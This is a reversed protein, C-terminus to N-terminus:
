FILLLLLLGFVLFSFAAAPLLHTFSSALAGELLDLVM